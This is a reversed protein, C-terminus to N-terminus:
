SAMFHKEPTSNESMTLKRIDLEATRRTEKEHYMSQDAAICLSDVSGADDPFLAIGISAGIHIRNGALVFPESLIRILTDAVMEAEYRGSPEEMIISFEDGGTRAVTDSRRVRAELIGSVHQLLLDGVHHGYTDNVLKFRDLDVSLLAMSNGARRSREIATVLRDQFLRRNALHTLDDHLALHQTREIQKELLLLLMGVAVVYKPLNWVENELHINHLFAETTPAVVFVLSWALFGGITIISGATGNRHTYWFYLCCGMYVAFLMADTGLDPSSFHKHAFIILSVGLCFQLGVTVWRLPHQDERGSLMGVALPGTGIVVATYDVASPSPNPLSELVIYVSMAVFSIAVMWRCSMGTDYPVTAWMFFIGAAILAILGIANCAAGIGDPLDAGIGTVFHLVILIWGVLWLRHGSSSPDRRLISSFACALCTVALIDPVKSWFM